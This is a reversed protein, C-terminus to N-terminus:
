MQCLRWKNYRFVNGESRLNPFASGVKGFANVPSASKLHTLVRNPSLITSVHKWQFRMRFPQNLRGLGENPPCLRRRTHLMCLATANV